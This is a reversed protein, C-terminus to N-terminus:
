YFHRYARRYGKDEAEKVTKVYERGSRLMDIRDYQQDTPLHYIKHGNNEVCKIKPYNKNLLINSRVVIDLKNAMHQAYESVTNSIVLVAEVKMNPFKNAFLMAEKVGYLQFIHKEHIQKDKSWCKCQVLKVMNDKICILDIGRDLKHKLAGQYEVHWGDDEYLYGIYIEYFLGIEESNHNKNVYRDLALQNKEVTPLNNYEDTSVYRLITDQESIDRDRDIQEDLIAEEYEELIPFYEHYTKLQYELLKLQKNLERKEAKAKKVEESAKLAPNKKVKLAKVIAEDQTRDAEAIMTALWERGNIFGKKFQKIKENINNEKITLTQTKNLILRNLQKEKNQYEAKLTEEKEIYTEELKKKNVTYLMNKFALEHSHENKLKQIEDSYKNQLQKIAKNYEDRQMDLKANFIYYAGFAIGIIILVEM